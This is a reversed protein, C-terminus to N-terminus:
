LVVFPDTELMYPVVDIERDTDNIIAKLRNSLSKVMVHESHFHGIDILGLGQAEASKADHYRLDGTIYVQAGSSFFANMLGGGSGSCVAVKKVQMDSPGVMRINKLRFRTKLKGALSELRIPSPLEGLRGMGVKRDSKEDPPQRIPVMASVNDLALMNVLVDNLGEPVIDLNTHASYIALQHRICMGISKGIPTLLDITKIPSFILPHHTVLLDASGQCAAEIVDPTPDLAVWITRVPWDTRGIQMGVNDWDEALHTPAIESLIEILDSVTATM